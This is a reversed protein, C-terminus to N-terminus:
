AGFIVTVAAIKLRGLIHSGKKQLQDPPDNGGSGSDIGDNFPKGAVPFHM